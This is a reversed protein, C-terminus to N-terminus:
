DEWDEIHFHHKKLYAEIEEESALAKDCLETIDRLSSDYYLEDFGLGVTTLDFLTIQM